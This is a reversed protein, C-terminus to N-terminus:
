FLVDFKLIEITTIVLKEVGTDELDGGVKGNAIRIMPSYTINKLGAFDLDFRKGFFLVQASVDYSTKKTTNDEYDTDDEYSEKGFGFGLYYSNRLDKQFNYNLLLYLSRNNETIEREGSNAYDIETINREGKYYFGIQLQDTTSYMYNLSLNGMLMEFDDISLKADTEATSASSNWGTSMGEGFSIQHKYSDEGYTSLSIIFLIVLLTERM